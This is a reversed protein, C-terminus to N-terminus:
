VYETSNNGFYIKHSLTFEEFTSFIKKKFILHQSAGYDVFWADKCISSISLTTVLLENKSAIAVLSSGKFKNNWGQKKKHCKRVFHGKIGCNYYAGKKKQKENKFKRWNIVRKFKRFVGKDNLTEHRLTCKKSVNCNKKCCNEM